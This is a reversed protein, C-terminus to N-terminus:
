KRLYIVDNIKLNRGSNVKKYSSNSRSQNNINLNNNMVNNNNVSSFSNNINNNNNANLINNNNNNVASGNTNLPTSGYMDRRISYKHSNNLKNIEYGKMSVIELFLGNLNNIMTEFSTPNIAIKMNFIANLDPIEPIEAVASHLIKNHSDSYFNLLNIEDKRMINSNITDMIKNMSIIKSQLIRSYTSLEQIHEQLFIDTKDMIEKEKKQLKLRIEQFANSMEQKITATSDKLEKKKNELTNNVKNIEEIRSSVTNM